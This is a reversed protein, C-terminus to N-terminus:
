PALNGHSSRRLIKTLLLYNRGRYCTVEGSIVFEPNDVREAEGELAELFGNPLLEMQRLAPGAEISHFIFTPKGDQVVFRGPREVLMTGEALLQGGSGTAPRADRAISEPDQPLILTSRDRDRLLNEIIEVQAPPRVGQNGAAPQTDTPQSTAQPPQQALSQDDGVPFAAGLAAALIVSSIILRQM